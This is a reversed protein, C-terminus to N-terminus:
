LRHVEVAPAVEVLLAEAALHDPVTTEVAAAAAEQQVRAQRAAEEQLAQLKAANEGIATKLDGILDAKESILTSVENQKDQLQTQLTEM